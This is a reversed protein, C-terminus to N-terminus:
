YRSKSLSKDYIEKYKRNINDWSYRQSRDICRVSIDNYDSLILEIKDAIEKYDFCNVSYGVEGEKFQGDFGQGRTYVVPIGQTMAEAYVLGFSEHISPMVFVDSKRFEAILEKKPKVGLYQVFSCKNVKKFVNKDVVRGFLTLSIDYGKQILIHCAEIITKSNKNKDIEAICILRISKGERPKIESLERKGKIFTPDIGNTIVVCKESIVDKYKKPVYKNLVLEKYSQSLFIVKSSNLMIDLCHKRYLQMNRMFGYIDSNRIAVIYPIGYKKKLRLAAYGGYLIRHVHVCDINDVSIRSVIDNYIYRQEGWYLLKEFKNFKRSIVFVNDDTKKDSWRPVYVVNDVGQNSLSDFMTKYFPRDIYTSCIHLVKMDLYNNM